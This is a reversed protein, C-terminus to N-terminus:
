VRNGTTLDDDWDRFSLELETHESRLKALALFDQVWSWTTQTEVSPMNFQLYDLDLQQGVSKAFAAGGGKNQVCNYEMIIGVHHKVITIGM